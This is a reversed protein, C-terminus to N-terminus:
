DGIKGELRGIIRLIENNNQRIKDIEEQLKEIKTDIRSVEADNANQIWFITASVCAVVAVMFTFWDKITQINSTSM